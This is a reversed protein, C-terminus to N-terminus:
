NNLNKFIEFLIEFLQFQIKLQENEKLLEENEQNISFCYDEKFELLNNLVKNEEAYERLEDNVSKFGNDKNQLEIKLCKIEEKLKLNEKIIKEENM